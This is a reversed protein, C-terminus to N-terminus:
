IPLGSVSDIKASDVALGTALDLGLSRVFVAEWQLTMERFDKLKM